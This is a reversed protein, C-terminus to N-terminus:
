TRDTHATVEIMVLVGSIWLPLDTDAIPNESTLVWDQTQVMRRLKGLFGAGAKGAGDRPLRQIVGSERGDEICVYDYPFGNLPARMVREAFSAPDRFQIDHGYGSTVM